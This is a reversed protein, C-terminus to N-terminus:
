FADTVSVAPAAIYNTPNRTFCFQFLGALTERDWSDVACVWWLCPNHAEVLSHAWRTGQTHTLVGGGWGASVGQMALVLCSGRSGWRQSGEPSALLNGECGPAPPPAEVLSPLLPAPCAEIGGKGSSLFRDPLAWSEPSCPAPLRLSVRFLCLPLLLWPLLSTLCVLQIVLSGQVKLHTRVDRSLSWWGTVSGREAQRLSSFLLSTIFNCGSLSTTLM